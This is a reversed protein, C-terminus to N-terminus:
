RGGEKKVCNEYLSLYYSTRMRFGPFEGGGILFKKLRDEMWNKGELPSIAQSDFVNISVGM